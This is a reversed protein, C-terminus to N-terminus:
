FATFRFRRTNKLEELVAAASPPNCNIHALSAPSHKRFATNVKYKILKGASSLIRSILHQNERPPSRWLMWRVSSGEKKWDKSAGKEALFAFLYKRSM